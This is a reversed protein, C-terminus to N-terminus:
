GREGSFFLFYFMNSYVSIQQFPISRYGVFLEVFNFESGAKNLRHYISEMEFRGPLENM